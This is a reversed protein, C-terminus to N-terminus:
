AFGVSAVARLKDAAGDYVASIVSVANPEVAMTPVAALPWTWMTDYLLSRGGVADQRVFWQYTAGDILGTPNGLIRDGELTVSFSAGRSADTEITPADTLIIVPGDDPTGSVRWNYAGAAADSTYTLIGVSRLPQGSAQDSYLYQLPSYFWSPNLAIFANVLAALTVDDPAEFVKVQYASALVAGGSTTDLVMRVARTSAPAKDTMVLNFALILSQLHPSLVANIAAEVQAGTPSAVALVSTITRSM